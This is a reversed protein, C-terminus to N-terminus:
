SPIDGFRDILHSFNPIGGYRGTLYNHEFNSTSRTKAETFDYLSYLQSMGSQNREVLWIQDRRLVDPDLLSTDHTTFVLQASTTNLSGQFIEVLKRTLLPHMSCDLEDIFLFKGTTAADILPGAIALLRQTGQSEDALDFVVPEALGPVSHITNIRWAVRGAVLTELAKENLLNKLPAAQAGFLDEYTRQEIALDSILLDANSLLATVYKRLSADQYLRAATRGTLQNPDASLDLTIASDRFWLFLPALEQANLEAGRSLALGNDRTRDQILRRIDPPLPSKDGFKWTYSGTTRDLDREYWRTRRTGPGTIQFLWEAHIRETDLSVGYVFRKDAVDVTIQFKSPNSQTHESFRFPVLGPIHDGANMKTASEVVLRRLARFAKYLNSKGSGNAGYIAALKLCPPTSRLVHDPHRKDRGAALSLIQEEGFSKFNETRFEVLMTIARDSTELLGIGPRFM